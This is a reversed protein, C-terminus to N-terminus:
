IDKFSKLIEGTRRHKTRNNERDFHKFGVDLSEKLNGVIKPALELFAQEFYHYGPWWDGKKYKTKEVESKKKKTSKGYSGREGKTEAPLIYHGVEVWDAYDAQGEAVTLDVRMVDYASVFRGTKPSRFRQVTKRSDYPAEEGVVESQIANQLDGTWYRKGTRSQSEEELIEKARDAMDLGENTLQSQVTDDVGKKMTEMTQYAKFAGTMDFTMKM